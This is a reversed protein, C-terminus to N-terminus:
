GLESVLKDINDQYLKGKPGSINHYGPGCCECYVADLINPDAYTYKIVFLSEGKLIKKALSIAQNLKIGTAKRIQKGFKIRKRKLIM